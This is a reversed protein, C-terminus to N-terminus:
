KYYGAGRINEHNDQEPNKKTTKEEEVLAQLNRLVREVFKYTYQGHEIAIRCAKEMEKAPTIRQLRLLGACRNYFFEPPVNQSAFMLEFLEKLTASKENARQNYYAMSRKNYANSHSATHEELLLPPHLPLPPFDEKLM